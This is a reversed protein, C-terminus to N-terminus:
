GLITSLSPQSSAVTPHVVYFCVMILDMAKREHIYGLSVLELHSLHPLYVFCWAKVFTYFFLLITYFCHGNCTTGTNKLLKAPNNCFSMARHISVAVM